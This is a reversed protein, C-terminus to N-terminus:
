QGASSIMFGLPSIIFSKVISISLERKFNKLSFQQLGEQFHEKTFSKTTFFFQGSSKSPWINESSSFDMSLEVTQAKKGGKVHTFM